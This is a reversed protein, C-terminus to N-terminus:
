VVGGAAVADGFEQEFVESTRTVVVGIIPDIEKFLPIM